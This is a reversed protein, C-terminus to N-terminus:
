MVDRPTVGISRVSPPVAADLAGDRGSRVESTADSRSARRAGRRPTRPAPELRL